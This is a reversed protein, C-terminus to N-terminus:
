FDQANEEGHRQCKCHAEDFPKITKHATHDIRERPMISSAPQPMRVGVSFM